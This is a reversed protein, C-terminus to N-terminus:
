PIAARAGWWRRRGPRWPTPVSGPRVPAPRSGTWGHTTQAVARIWRSRPRGNLSASRRTAAMVCPRPPTCDGAAHASGACRLCGWGSSGPSLPRHGCGRDAVLVDEAAFAPHVNHGLALDHTLVPASVRPHLTWSRCSVPGGPPRRPRWRRPTARRASWVSGALRPLRCPAARVMSLVRGIAM